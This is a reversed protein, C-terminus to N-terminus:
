KNQKDCISTELLYHTPSFGTFGTFLLLISLTVSTVAITEPVNTGMLAVAIAMAILVRTIRNIRGINPKM